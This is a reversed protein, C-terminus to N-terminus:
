GIPMAIDVAYKDQPIDSVAALARSIQFSADPAIPPLYREMAM